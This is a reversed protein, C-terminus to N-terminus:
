NLYSLNPTYAPNFSWSGTRERTQAKVAPQTAYPTIEQTLGAKANEAVYEESVGLERAVDVVPSLVVSDTLTYLDSDNRRWRQGAVIRESRPTNISSGPHIAQSVVHVQAELGDEYEDTTAQINAPTVNYGAVQPRPDDGYGNHGQKLEYAEQTLPVNYDRRGLIRRCRNAIGSGINRPASCLQLIDSSKVEQQIYEIATTDELLEWNFDDRDM